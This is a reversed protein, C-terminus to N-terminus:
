INIGFKKLKSISKYAESLAQEKANEKKTLSNLVSKINALELNNFTHTQSGVDIIKKWDDKGILKLRDYIIKIDLIERDELKSLSRIKEFLQSNSEILQLGRKGTEINISSFNKNEKIKKVLDFVTHFDLKGIPEKDVYLRLGDWFKLGQKKIESIIFLTEDIQNDVKEKEKERELAEEKSILFPSLKNLDINFTVEKLQEWTTKRKVFESFLTNSASSTLHHYVFILIKKIEEQISMEVKQMEYIKWLDLRNDTLYHFYSLSYAVVFSKLNTDGIADINKRGFLSDTCKFLIGNAILKRYFNEGPLLNKKVLESTKKNYEIFNKQAGRSVFHPELEWINIFKAVDSKLFKQNPPNQEKFKKQQPLSAIKNLSEKYQGSAREFFWLTSLNKNNPDVVYKKRSLSELQVFFPNNSSLDLETVKNQSNAYRAINPVEINKQEINKIVTLKMQVFVKSLDADKFKKQTHYLSATTQGGNVIQFDLLRTLYLQNNEIKTEVNEATATIGNNYPLFMEPKSVITEKIGKNFKGTQGLFARVNSELLENSHEKYLKALAIGPMLALYCDYLENTNPMQLCQIGLSNGELLDQLNIEIPERNSSSENIKFFRTIDWVHIFIDLNEFGKLTVKELDHNSNGNIFLYLNIRDFDEKQKSILKLLENLEVHSPDIYDIHGKLAANLFKKLQNISKNFDEKGINYEYTKPNFFTIYLDLTEFFVKNSDTKYEDKLCYGNLKWDVRGQSDPQIYSLVRGGESKGISDIIEICYETFKDEFSTGAGDSYVLSSVDSNVQELYNKFAKDM